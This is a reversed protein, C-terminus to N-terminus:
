INRIKKGRDNFIINNVREFRLPIKYAQLYKSLFRKIELPDLATKASYFATLVDEDDEVKVQVLASDINPHNELANEIEELEVRFGNVKVMNDIRGIFSYCNDAIVAVIDGTHYTSTGMPMRNRYGRMLTKSKVCLEGCEGTHALEGDEKIVTIEAYPCPYGIPIEETYMKNKDIEYYTIVNTETPGYLNFIQLKPYLQNLKNIYKHPMAEGAYILLRLGSFTNGDDCDLLKIIISPVSYWITIRNSSIYKKVSKVFANIGRKMLALQSGSFLACYIDFVSLDFSFPAHSSFCDCSDIHMNQQAWMVFANAADHTIEIGKPNGTTGSTYLIYAIENDNQNFRVGKDSIYTKRSKMNIWCVPYDLITDIDAVVLIIEADNLIYEVQESPMGKDIPVYTCGCKYIAFITSICEFSKNMYVAINGKGEGLVNEIMQSIKDVNELLEIYTYSIGNDKIAINDPFDKCAKVFRNYLLM